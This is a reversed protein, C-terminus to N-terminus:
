GEYIPKILPHWQHLWACLWFLWMAFTAITVVVNGIGADDKNLVGAARATFVAGIAIVGLLLYAITGTIVPGPISMVATTVCPERGLTVIITSVISVAGAPLAVREGTCLMSVHQIATGGCFRFM